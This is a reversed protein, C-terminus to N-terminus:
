LEPENAADATTIECQADASRSLLAAASCAMM